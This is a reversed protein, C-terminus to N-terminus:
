KEQEFLKEVFPAVHVQCVNADGELFSTYTAYQDTADFTVNPGLHLADGRSGNQFCLKIFISQPEAAQHRFLSLWDLNEEWTPAGPWRDHLGWDEDRSMTFHHALCGNKEPLSYREFPAKEVDAIPVGALKKFGHMLVHRGNEQIDGEMWQLYLNGRRTFSEHGGRSFETEGLLPRPPCKLKKSLDLYYVRDCGYLASNSFVLLDPNTPSIQVHTLLKPEGWVAELKGEDIHFRYIVTRPCLFSMEFGLGAPVFKGDQNATVGPVQEIMEFALWPPSTLNLIGLKFGEPARLLEETKLSELNVRFLSTRTHFYLEPREPHVCASVNPQGDVDTLQVIKGTELELLFMENRGTRNSLFVMHSGGFVYPRNTFYLTRNVSGQSTFQTITAGTVDDQFVFKESPYVKGISSKM